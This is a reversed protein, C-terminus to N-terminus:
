EDNYGEDYYLSEAAELAENYLDEYQEQSMAEIADAAEENAGIIEVESSEPPDLGYSPLGHYYTVELELGQVTICYAIPRM